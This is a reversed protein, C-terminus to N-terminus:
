ACSASRAFMTCNDCFSRALEGALAALDLEGRRRPVAPWCWAGRRRMVGAKGYAEYYDETLRIDIADKM